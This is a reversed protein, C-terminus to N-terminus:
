CGRKDKVHEIFTKLCQSYLDYNWHDHMFKYANESMRKYLDKDDKLIRMKEALDQVNDFQFIFGTDRDKVLDHAAGVRDSVIVPLRASMAENVVLGWPEYSSPLVFIDAEHYQRILDKGFHKGAFVVNQHKAYKEKFTDLLEGGGVIRLQVKEDGDFQEVFADMMVPLNKCDVVRGVYLFIFIEHQAKENVYFKENNVMMPMLFIREEKMGYHRFLDKHTFGGGPLGYIHCNRFITNLYLSKFFRKICNRPIALPTDSDVGIAKRHFVNLLFLLVFVRNSYGNMIVIDNEKLVTNLAMVQKWFSSPLIRQEPRGDNSNALSDAHMYVYHIGMLDYVAKNRDITYAAPEHLIAFVKM